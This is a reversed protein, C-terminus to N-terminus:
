CGKFLYKPIINILKSEVLTQGNNPEIYLAYTIAWRITWDVGWIGGSWFGGVGGSWFGWCRRERSQRFFQLTCIIPLLEGCITCKCGEPSRSQRFVATNSFPPLPLWLIVLFFCIRSKCILPPIHPSATLLTATNPPVVTIDDQRM